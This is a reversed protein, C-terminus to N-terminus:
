NIGEVILQKQSQLKEAEQAQKQCMDIFNKLVVNAFDRCLYAAEPPLPIAVGKYTWVKHFNHAEAVDVAFSAGM